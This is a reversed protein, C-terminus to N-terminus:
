PLEDPVDVEEGREATVYCRMGAILITPGYAFGRWQVGPEDQLLPEHLPDFWEHDPTWCYVTGDKKGWKIGEREILPGGLDWRGSYDPASLDSIPCAEPVGYAAGIADGWHAYELDCRDSPHWCKDIGGDPGAQEQYHDCAKCTGPKAGATGEITAVLWNLQTLSAESTKIKM